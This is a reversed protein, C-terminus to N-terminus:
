LYGGAAAVALLAAEEVVTAADTTPLVAAFADLHPIVAALYELAALFVARVEAAQTPFERALEYFVLNGFPILVANVSKFLQSFFVSFLLMFIVLLPNVFENFFPM